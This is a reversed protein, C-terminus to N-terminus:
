SRIGTHFMPGEEKYHLMDSESVINAAVELYILM